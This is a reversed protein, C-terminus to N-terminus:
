SYFASFAQHLKLQAPSYHKQMEFIVAGEIFYKVPFPRSVIYTEDKLEIGGGLFDVYEGAISNISNFCDEMAEHRELISQWKNLDIPASLTENLNKLSDCLFYYATMRCDLYEYAEKYIKNVARSSKYCDGKILELENKLSQFIISRNEKCPPFFQQSNECYQWYDLIWKKKNRGIEQIKNEEAFSWNMLHQIQPVVLHNPDNEKRDLIAIYHENVRKLDEIAQVYSQLKEQFSKPAEIEVHMEMGFIPAQLAFILSLLLIFKKM